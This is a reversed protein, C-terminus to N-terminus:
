RDRQATAPPTRIAVAAAAKLMAYDAVCQRGVESDWPEAGRVFRPGLAEIRALAEFVPKQADPVHWDVEPVSTHIMDFSEETVGASHLIVNLLQAGGHICSWIVLESDDDPDLTRLRTNELRQAKAWHEDPRMVVEDWDVLRAQRSLAPWLQPNESQPIGISCWNHVVVTVTDFRGPFSSLRASGIFTSALEM